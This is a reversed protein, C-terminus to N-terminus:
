FRVYRLGLGYGWTSTSGVDLSLDLALADHQSIPLEPGLRLSAGLFADFLTVGTTARSIAMLGVNFAPRLHFLGFGQDIGLQERILQSTLGAETRGLLIECAGEFSLERWLHVRVGGAGGAYDLPIDWLTEHLYLGYLLLNVRAPEPATTPVDLQPEAAQAIAPIVLHTLAVFGAAVACLRKSAM